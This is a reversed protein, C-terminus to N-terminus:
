GRGIQWRLFRVIQLPQSAKKGAEEVLKEVTLSPDKVFKQKTLCSQEYFSNMKGELIKDIVYEPKDGIQSKAIDMERALVDSSIDDPNLFEPAEAAIHMAIDKALQQQDSDGGIEVLTLIRGGMHSYVGYSHGNEKNILEFRKIQINEGLSLVLEARAEEVSADPNQSYTQALFVELNSPKTKALDECLHKLFDQFKENQIVFDTEANIELLAITDDTESSGILGENAERGEKKVASAMGAKRLNAIAQEMDGDAEDLAKKCKSMGVGTRERLTKVMDATVKSM